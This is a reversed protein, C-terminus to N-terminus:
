DSQMNLLESWENILENLLFIINEKKGNYDITFIYKSQDCQAMPESCQMEDEGCLATRQTNLSTNIKINVHKIQNSIDRVLRQKYNQEFIHENLNLKNIFYPISYKKPKRKRSIDFKSKCDSDTSKFKGSEYPYFKILCIKKLDDNYKGSLYWELLHNLSFCINFIQYITFQMEYESINSLEYKCKHFLDDANNVTFFIQKDM